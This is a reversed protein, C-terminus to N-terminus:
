PGRIHGPTNGPILKGPSSQLDSIFTKWPATRAPRGRSQLRGEGGKKQVLSVLIGDVDM